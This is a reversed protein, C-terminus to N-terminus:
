ASLMGIPNTQLRWAQNWWLAHEAISGRHGATNGPEHRHHKGWEHKTCCEAWKTMIADELEPGMKSGVAKSKMHPMCRSSPFTDVGPIGPFSRVPEPLHCTRLLQEYRDEGSVVNDWHQMLQDTNWAGFINM